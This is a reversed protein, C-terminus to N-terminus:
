DEEPFPFAWPANQESKMKEITNVRQVFKDLFAADKTKMENFRQQSMSLINEFNDYLHHITYAIVAKKDCDGLGILKSGKRVEGELEEDSLEEFDAEIDELFEEQSEESPVYETDDDEEVKKIQLMMEEVDRSLALAPDDYKPNTLPQLDFPKILKAYSEDEVNLSIGELQFFGLQDNFNGIHGYADTMDEKKCFKVNKYLFVNLMIYLQMILALSLGNLLCMTTQIYLTKIPIGKEKAKKLENRLFRIPASVRKQPEDEDIICGFEEDYISYHTYYFYIKERTKSDILYLYLEYDNPEKSFEEIKFNCETLFDNINQLMNIAKQQSTLEIELKQKKASPQQDMGAKMIKVKFMKITKRKNKRNRHKNTRNRNRNTRNRNSRNRNTRNRHKKSHKNTKYQKKM